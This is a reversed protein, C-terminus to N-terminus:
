GQRPQSSFGHGSMYVYLRRGVKRGKMADANAKAMAEVWLFADQELHGPWPADPPANFDSSKIRKINADPLGGGQPSALWNHVGDADHEPGALTAPPDVFGPYKRLGIVIAYHDPNM